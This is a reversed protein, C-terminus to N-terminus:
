INDRRNIFTPKTIRIILSIITLEGAYVLAVCLILVSLLVKAMESENSPLTPFTYRDFTEPLQIFANIKLLWTKDRNNGPRTKLFRSPFPSPTPLLTHSYTQIGNCVVRNSIHFQLCLCFWLQIVESRIITSFQPIILNLFLSDLPSDREQM